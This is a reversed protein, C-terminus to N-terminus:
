EYRLAQAPNIRSAQRAPLFTMLLSFAYAVAVIFLLQLWPVKFQLGPVQEGIFNVLNYSLLTGMAVGLLIGLLGVFSSEMLYSGMVMSRRYGIARLVGIQQRREVVARFSIVGLAAIGVLLGSAMFGQLLNNIAVNQRREKEIEDALVTTDMGHELFNSELERAFTRVDTQPELMFRYTTIPLPEPSVDDLLSKSTIIAGFQDALVELVAIVKLRVIRGSRPERVEIETAPMEEDEIFFGDMRFAPGGIQFGGGSRVPIALADIVALKPDERLAAWIEEKTTGFEPATLAFEHEDHALFSEDAGRVRYSKWQQETSGVQRADVPLTTYGGIRQVVNAHEGMLADIRGQIDDIPNNYSVLAALDWGGTVSDIDETASSFSTTLVSMVILTFIVLALMALTLGTRLRSSLPYAVATKLSPRIRDFPAFVATLANIVLDSNYVVVWVAAAVMCVGSIFFMEINSALEPVVFDLADLPTGWYLVLTLGIFTFANRDESDAVVRENRLAVQRIVEFAGVALALVITITQSQIIGVALWFACVIGIAGATIFAQTSMPWANRLFLSRLMRGLGIVGITVGIAFLAVVEFVWVGLAALVVGLAVALWGQSLAPTSFRLVAWLIDFVWILPWVLALLANGVFAGIRLRFLARAARVLYIAPRVLARLLLKVRSEAASTAMVEPLDRIATVINLRSARYASFFVTVFTLVVGTCYAVVFSRVTYTPVLVFDDDESAFIGAMITVVAFGVGIGLLAGVLASLLDYAMGEYLFSQVLHRRKMGIARAIGMETKREAALMVFILFILMVGAIMSFLGFIMFISTIGSAAQEGRDLSDRKVDQVNLKRLDSFLGFVRAAAEEGEADEVALQLQSSVDDDALLSVLRDGVEDGELLEASELLDEKFRKRQGDSRDRISQLIGPRALEAKIAEAVSRDTLLSRLHDTVTKSLEAGSERDGSNSIIITNAQEPRDFIRQAQELSMLVTERDGAIGGNPLVAEVRLSVPGSMLFMRLEHGATAGLEKAAAVNLFVDNGSLGELSVAAGSTDELRGFVPASALDLAAVNAIGATQRTEPNIVAARESIVPAMGDIEQYGSLAARLEDYQAMPFYADSGANGLFGRSATLVEDIEGLEEYIENKISFSITDGTGLASSIILTSLMLGIVILATQGPRRPINRMGIKFIIRNMLAMAGIAALILGFAVLVAVMIVSMELGFIKEM